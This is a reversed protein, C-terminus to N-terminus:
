VERFRAINAQFRAISIQAGMDILFKVLQRQPSISRLIHSGDYDIWQYTEVQWVLLGLQSGAMVQKKQKMGKLKERLSLLSKRGKESSTNFSSVHM